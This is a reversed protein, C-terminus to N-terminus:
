KQAGNWKFGKSMRSNGGFGLAFPISALRFYRTGKISITQFTGSDPHPPFGNTIPALPAFELKTSGVLLTRTSRDFIIKKGRFRGIKQLNDLTAYYDFRFFDEERRSVQLMYGPIKIVTRKKGVLMDVEIASVKKIERSQALSPSTIISLLLLILTFIKPSKKM